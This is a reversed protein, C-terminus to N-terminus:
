WDRVIRYAIGPSVRHILSLLKVKGVHSEPKSAALDRVIEKAARAPAIKGTGRGRTMGTDVLPPLAEMVHVDLGADEIRYRLSRTFSRVYAKTACYIPSSRKPAIALGSSVNVLASPANRSLDPLMAYALRTLASINLDIEEDVGGPAAWPEDGECCAHQVGANNILMRIALGRSACASRITDAADPSTVDCVFGDLGPTTELAADLRAASRGLVLPQAGHALLERAIALGIGATGGTIGANLGELRM